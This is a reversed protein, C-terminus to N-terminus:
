SFLVPGPLITKDADAEAEAEVALAEAWAAVAVEPVVWAAGAAAHHATHLHVTAGQLHLHLVLHILGAQHLRIAHHIITDEQHHLLVGAEM